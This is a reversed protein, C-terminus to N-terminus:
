ARVQYWLFRDVLLRCIDEREFELGLKEL